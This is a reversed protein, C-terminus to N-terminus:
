LTIQAGGVESDVKNAIAAFDLDGVAVQENPLIWVRGGLFDLIRDIVRTLTAANDSFDMDIM